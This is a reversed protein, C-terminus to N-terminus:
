QIRIKESQKSIVHEEALQILYNEIQAEELNTGKINLYQYNKM